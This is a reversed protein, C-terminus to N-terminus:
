VCGAVRNVYVKLEKNNKCKGNYSMWVSAVTLIAGVVVCAATGVAPIACIAAGLAFGTGAIILDQDFQNFLIYVGGGDAGGGIRPAITEHDTSSTSVNKPEVVSFQLSDGEHSLTFSTTTAISTENVTRPIPSAKLEEIGQKFQNDTLNLASAGATMQSGPHERSTTSSQPDANAIGASALALTTATAITLISKTIKNM